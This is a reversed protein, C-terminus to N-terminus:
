PEAHDPSLAHDPTIAAKGRGIAVPLVPFVLRSIGEWLPLRERQNRPPALRPGATVPRASSSRLGRNTATQLMGAPPKLRPATGLIEAVCSSSSPPLGAM